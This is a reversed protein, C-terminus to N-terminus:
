DVFTFFAHYYLIQIIYGRPPVTITDRQIPNIENLIINSSNTGFGLVYFFHGHLHIPHELEDIDLHLNLIMIVHLYNNCQFYFLSILASNFYIDHVKEENLNYANLTIDWRKPDSTKNLKLVELFTNNKINSWKHDWYPGKLGPSLYGVTNQTWPDNDDIKSINFPWVDLIITMNYISGNRPPPPECFPTYTDDCYPILANTPLDMCSTTKIVKVDRPIPKSGPPANDYLVVGAIERSNRRIRYCGKTYFRMWYSGIEQNANVLVSYRQGSNITLNTFNNKFENDNRKVLMGEVEIIEFTHNDISFTFLTMASM